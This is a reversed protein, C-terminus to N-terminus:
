KVLKLYPKTAEALKEALAQRAAKADRRREALQARDKEILRPLIDWAQPSSACVEVVANDRFIVWARGASKIGYSSM